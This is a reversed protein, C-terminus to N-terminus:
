GDELTERRRRRGPDDRRLDVGVRSGAIDHGVQETAAAPDGAGGDVALAAGDRELRAREVPHEGLDDQARRVDAM